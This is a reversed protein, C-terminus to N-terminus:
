ILVSQKYHNFWNLEKISYAPLNLENVGYKNETFVQYGPWKNNETCWAYLMILQEWEYRGQALFQPSSEFINFAFPRTKEQAIFFFSWGFGKSEIAEMIDSYLAAQLHYDLDAASRPFDNVSASAASKLDAIIRREQKMYDPRIKVKVRQGTIIEIECYVSMEAEGKTILTNAYRHHTLRDKMAKLMNLTGNDITQKGNAIRMENALWEKYKNTSRPSKSGEGILIDLIATEDFIHYEKEFLEEELVFTHYASGFTMADTEKKEEEKFHLPSKKLKKLGSCSIYEKKSHYEENSDKKIEFSISKIFKEM